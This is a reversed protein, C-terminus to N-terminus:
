IPEKWIAAKGEKNFRLEAEIGHGRFREIECLCWTLFEMPGYQTDKMWETKHHYGTWQILKSGKM